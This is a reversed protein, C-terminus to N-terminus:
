AARRNERRAAVMYGLVAAIPGLVFILLLTLGMGVYAGADCPAGPRRVCTYTFAVYAGAFFPSAIVVLVFGALAGCLKVWL